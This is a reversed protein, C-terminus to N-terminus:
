WKGELMGPVVYDSEPSVQITVIPKNRAFKMVAAVDNFGALRELHKRTPYMLALTGKAYNELAQSPAIWIGDHTEAADAVPHQGAPAQAAFFYVNYRRPEGKPTIWHSFLELPRVDATWARTALLQAFRLEGNRLQARGPDDADWEAIPQHREDCAFLVGCEEFLERLAALTVGRRERETLATQDVPLTQPVSSRFLAAMREDDAGIARDAAEFDQDELTGGPFVYADPGFASQASRRLMFVEIGAGATRLLMVTAAPRVDMGHANGQSAVKGALKRGCELLSQPLMPVLGNKVTCKRLRIRCPRANPTGDAFGDSASFARLANKATPGSGPDRDGCIFNM